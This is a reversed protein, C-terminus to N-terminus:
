TTHIRMLGIVLVLNSSESISPGIMRISLTLDWCRAEPQAQFLTWERSCMSIYFTVCHSWPICFWMCWQIVSKWWCVCRCKFSWREISCEHFWRSCYLSSLFTLTNFSEHYSTCVLLVLAPLLEPSCMSQSKLKLFWMFAASAWFTFLRFLWIILCLGSHDEWNFTQRRHSRM